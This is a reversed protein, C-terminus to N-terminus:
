LEGLLRQANECLIMDKTSQPLDSDLIVSPHVDESAYLVKEAGAFAVARKVLDIPEVKPLSRDCFFHLYATDLYVNPHNSAIVTAEFSYNGGLHAIVINLNPFDWAVDDVHVPNGFRVYHKPFAVVGAHFLVIAGLEQCVEYFPYLRSDNPMIAQSLPQFKVGRVGREGMYHRLEQCSKRIDNVDARYFPIYRGPEREAMDCVLDNSDRDALLVMRDIGMGANHDGVGEWPHEHFNIIM